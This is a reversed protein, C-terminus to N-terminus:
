GGGEKNDERSLNFYSCAMIFVFLGVILIAIRFSATVPSLASILILLLTVLLCIYFIVSYLTNHREIM